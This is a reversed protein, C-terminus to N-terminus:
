PWVGYIFLTYSWVLGSKLNSLYLSERRQKQYKGTSDEGIYFIQILNLVINNLDMIDGGPRLSNVNSYLIINKM